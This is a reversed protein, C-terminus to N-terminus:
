DGSIARETAKRYNDAKVFTRGVIAVLPENPNMIPVARCELGAHCTFAVSAGAEFSEELAAGCFEACQGVFKGDPNLNRCISNNNAVSVDRSWGDVIAIALGSEDALRDISQENIFDSTASM